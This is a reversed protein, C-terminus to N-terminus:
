PMNPMLMAEVGAEVARAVAAEGGGDADFDSLYLHTHTDFLAM